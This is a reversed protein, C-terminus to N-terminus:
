TPEFRFKQKVLVLSLPNLSKFHESRQILTGTHSSTHRTKYWTKAPILSFQYRYCVDYSCYFYTCLVDWCNHVHSTTYKTKDHIPLLFSVVRLLVSFYVCWDRCTSLMGVGLCAQCITIEQQVSYFWTRSLHWICLKRTVVRNDPFDAILNCYHSM